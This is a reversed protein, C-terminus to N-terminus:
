PVYPPYSAAEIPLEGPFPQRLGGDRYMLVIENPLLEPHRKVFDPGDMAQVTADGYLLKGVSPLWAWQWLPDSWLGDLVYITTGPPVEPYMAKLDDMLLDWRENRGGIERNHTFTQHGYFGLLAAAFALGTLAAAPRFFRAAFDYAPLLLRAAVLLFFPAAAYTYRSATWVEVPTYPLLALVLGAAALRAWEPGRVYAAAAAVIVVSGLTWHLAGAHWDINGTPLALWSLYIWLNRAQHFGWSMGDGDFKLNPCSCSQYYAFFGWFYIAFPLSVAVLKSLSLPRPAYLLYVLCVAPAFIVSGENTLFMFTFAIVSAGYLWHRRAGERAYAHMFLMSAFVFGTALVHPLATIYTVTDFHAGHIAFGAAVLAAVARRGTLRTVLAYLLAVSAAHAALNVSRFVLPNMGALRFETWYVLHTLPRWSPTIDRMRLVDAFWPGFPKTAIDAIVVLDDGGFYYGLTPIHLGLALLVAAFAGWHRLVFAKTRAALTATSVAARGEDAYSRPLAIAPTTM